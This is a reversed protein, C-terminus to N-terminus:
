KQDQPPRTQNLNHITFAVGPLAALRAAASIAATLSPAEIRRAHRPTSVTWLM